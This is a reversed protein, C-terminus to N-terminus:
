LRTAPPGRNTFGPSTSTYIQSHARSLLIIDPTFPTELEPWQDMLAHHSQKHIMYDCVVCKEASYVFATDKISNKLAFNGHRHVAQVTTIFLFISVMMFAVAKSLTHHIHKRNQVIQM